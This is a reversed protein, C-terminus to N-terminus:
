RSARSPSTPGIRINKPNGKRQPRGRTPSTAPTPVRPCDPAVPEGSLRTVDAGAFAVHHVSGNVVAARDGSAGFSKTFTINKGATTANFADIIERVGGTADFLGGAVVRRGSARNREPHEWRRTRASQPPRTTAGCATLPLAAVISVVSFRILLSLARMRRGPRLSNVINIM